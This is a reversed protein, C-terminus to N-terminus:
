LGNKLLQAHASSNIPTSFTLLFCWRLLLSGHQVFHRFTKSKWGAAIAKRGLLSNVKWLSWPCKSNPKGWFENAVVQDGAIKVHFLGLQGETYRSINDLLESDDRRSASAKLIMLICILDKFHEYVKDLLSISLQDSACFVLSHKKLDEASMKLTDCFITNLVKLTGELSSEDIHMAPLPYQETKHLPIPQVSVPPPIDDALRKRLKPFSEYLIDEIHWLKAAELQQVQELSPLLDEPGFALVPLRSECKPKLDLPLGGFEVGYLPVLTATTGNDFHDISAKRQEGVRFAINLNDWIIMFARTRAIGVIECLREAGLKKIKAIAATYSLTFGAHNLVNFQSRSAGCGLLYICTTTQFESSHENQCQMLMCIVTVLVQIRSDSQLWSYLFIVHVLDRDKREATPVTEPMGIARLLECLTPALEEADRMIRQLSFQQLVDTVGCNQQPRLNAALKISERALIEATTKTAWAHAMEPQRQRISELLDSGMTILM